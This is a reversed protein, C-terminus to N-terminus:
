LVVDASNQDFQFDAIAGLGGQPGLLMIQVLSTNSLEMEVAGASIVPASLNLLL